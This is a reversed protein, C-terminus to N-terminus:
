DDHIRENIIVSLETKLLNSRLLVGRFFRYFMLFPRAWVHKYFFPFYNKLVENPLFFRRYLYLLKYCRPSKIKYRRLGNLTLNKRNGYTGSTLVFNLMETEKETLQNEKDQDSFLKLSLNRVIEEEELLDLNLIEKKIYKWNLSSHNNLFLYIDVFARIGTGSGTLHKHNHAIFYIYFDEASLHYGCKNDADKVMKAEIGQYYSFALDRGNDAFLSRHLEFNYVPQKYYADHNTKGFVRATYGLDLMIRKAEDAKEKDILIDNDSMERTGYVPYYDKLLIGKLPLYWIGQNELSNLITEREADFLVTRRLSNLRCNQWKQDADINKLALSALASVNHQTCLVYLEDASVDNFFSEDEQRGNIADRLLVVMKEKLKEKRYAEM